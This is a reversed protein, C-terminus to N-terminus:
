TSMGFLFYDLSGNPVYEYILIKEQEELCFGILAVLNRHQLKAILLIENKFEISGQTSSTSLRKV